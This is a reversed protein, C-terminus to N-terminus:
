RGKCIRKVCGEIKQDLQGFLVSDRWHLFGLTIGTITIESGYVILFLLVVMKLRVWEDGRKAGFTERVAPLLEDRKGKANWGGLVLSNWLEWGLLRGRGRAVRM